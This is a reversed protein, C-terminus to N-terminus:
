TGASHWRTKSKEIEDDAMGSRNKEFFRRITALMGKSLFTSLYHRWYGHHDPWYRVARRLLRRANKHDGDTLCAYALAFYPMSLRHNVHETGLEEYIEPYQDVIRRLVLFEWPEGQQLVKGWTRTGQNLHQRYLVLSEDVYGFDYHRAMRMFFEYDDGMRLTTDFGGSQDICSKRIMLSSTQFLTEAFLQPFIRGSPMSLNRSLKVSHEIIGGADFTTMDSYVASCSPHQDVYEIQLKIKNPVWLDDSDLLAVWEGTAVALGTNRAVPPGANAQRIYRIRGAYAALVQETRDTSGDDVVIVEHIPYAQALVSEITQCIYLESNYTPILATVTTAQM